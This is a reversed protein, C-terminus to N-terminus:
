LCHKQGSIPSFNLIPVTHGTQIKGRTHAKNRSMPAVTEAKEMVRMSGKECMWWWSSNGRGFLERKRNDLKSRPSFSLCGCSDKESTSKSVSTRKTDNKGGSVIFFSVFFDIQTAPWSSMVVVPAKGKRWQAQKLQMLSAIAPLAGHWYNLHLLFSDM